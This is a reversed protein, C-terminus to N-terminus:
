EADGFSLRTVLMLTRIVVGPGVEGGAVWGTVEEVGDAEDDEVGADGDALEPEADDESM